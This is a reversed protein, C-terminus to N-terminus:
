EEELIKLAEEYREKLSETLTETRSLNHKIDAIKVVRARESLKTARIYEFYTEDEYRTLLIIDIMLDEKGLTMLIDFLLREEIETDELIDHFLGIIWEDSMLPFNQAVALPHSNDKYYINSILLLNMADKYTKDDM